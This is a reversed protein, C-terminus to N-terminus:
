IKVMTFYIILGILGLILYVSALLAVGEASFSAILASSIFATLMQFGGFLAGASGRKDHFPSLARSTSNSSIMIQSFLTLFVAFMILPVDILGLVIFSIMWAGAFSVLVLGMILTKASGIHKIFYPNALRGVIGGISALGTVWGYAVPSMQFQIQFIFSSITAYAMVAAMAIGTLLTCGLFLPHTLLYRYNAYIDKLTFAAPNKYLNTEPCFVAYILLIAGLILGLTLFNGQWGYAQQIYGGLTPAVLPSLGVILGFYSAVSALRDGQLTDALITRGIGICVGAGIGQLLRWALFSDIHTSFVAAFSSLAALSLGFIVIPKRGYQDSLPGYLLMSAGMGLLYLSVSQQVHQKTTHMFVMIHPMSALHLDVGLMGSMSLLMAIVLTKIKIFSLRQNEM